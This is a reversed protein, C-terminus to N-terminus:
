CSFQPPHFVANVSSVPIGTAYPFHLPRSPSAYRKFTFPTYVLAEQLQIKQFQQEQQHEKEQAQKLKNMLYCRGNCHMEPRNKNVCLEKAIYSKNMEFGAFVLLGSLNVALSCCLLLIAVRRILM